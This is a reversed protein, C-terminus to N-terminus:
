GGSALRLAAAIDEAIMAVKTKEIGYSPGAQLYSPFARAGRWWFEGGRIRYTPGAPIPRAERNRRAIANVAKIAVDGMLLYARVGTFLALERELLLSCSRIAATPVSYGVKGCKVATTCYIGRELLARLSGAELGASAFAALTTQEYLAAPGQYYDDGEVAAAAESILVVKVAPPAVAINPLYRREMQVGECSLAPCVVAESSRMAEEAIGIPGDYYLHYLNDRAAKGLSWSPGHRKVPHLPQPVIGATQLTSASLTPHYVRVM